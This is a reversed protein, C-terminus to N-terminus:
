FNSITYEILVPSMQRKKVKVLRKSGALLNPNDQVPSVIYTGEPLLATFKGTADAQVRQTDSSGQKQIMAFGAYTTQWCLTSSLALRGNCHFVLITGIMGSQGTDSANQSQM